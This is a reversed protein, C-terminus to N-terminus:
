VNERLAIHKVSDSDAHYSEVMPTQPSRAACGRFTGTGTVADAPPPEGATDPYHQNLRLAARVRGCLAPPSALPKLVALRRSTLGSSHLSWTAFIDKRLATASGQPPTGTHRRHMGLVPEM